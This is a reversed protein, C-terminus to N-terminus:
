INGLRVLLRDLLLLLALGLRLVGVALLGLALLLHRAPQRAPTKGLQRTEPLADAADEAEVGVLLLGELAGRLGRAGVALAVEHAAGELVAQAHQLAGRRGGPGPAIRGQDVLVRGEEDGLPDVVGVLVAQRELQRVPRDAHQEVVAGLHAVGM